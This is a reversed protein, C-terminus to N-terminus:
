AFRYRNRERKWQAGKQFRVPAIVRLPPPERFFGISALEEVTDPHMFAIWEEPEVRALLDFAEVLDNESLVPDTIALDGEDASLRPLFALASGAALLKIVSRRAADM